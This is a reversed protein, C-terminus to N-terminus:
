HIKKFQNIEVKKQYIQNVVSVKNEWSLLEVAKVANKSMAQRENENEWLWEIAEAIDQIIQKSRRVQIKFGCNEAVMDSSGYQDLCIVPLGLTLAESIVTPTGEWISSLVFVHTNSMIKIAESRPLWGHWYCYKDIDLKEALRRWKQMCIGEGIIDLHWHVNKLTGSLAKLLFQLAKRHIHLGSWSIRLPEETERRLLRSENKEIVPPGVACIVKSEQGWTKKMIKKVSSTAAILGNDAFKAACFPRPLLHTHTINILNKVGFYLMGFLGMAPLLNWPILGLGGVPGWVFPKGLKWLYGPERFGIMTLQHVVDFNTSETLQVALNFADKHWKRYTWYYSPPWLRELIQYRKRDIFYFTVNKKVSDCENIGESIEAEFRKSQTIVHLEHHQALSSIFGWGVGPESGRKPSVSYACVLIKM